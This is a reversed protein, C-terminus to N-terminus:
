PGIDSSMLARMESEHAKVLEVNEPLATPPPAALDQEVQTVAEKKAEASLTSDANIAAIEDAAAKKREESTWDVVAFAQVASEYAQGYAQGDAFGHKKAIADFQADLETSEASEQNADAEGPDLAQMEQTAAIVAKLTSETLKIEAPPSDDQAAVPMAGAAALAIALLVRKLHQM